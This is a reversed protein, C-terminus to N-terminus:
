LWPVRRTSAEYIVCALAYTDAMKMNEDAPMGQGTRLFALVEPAAYSLSAGIAQSVRFAKVRVASQDVIQCIGFDSLMSALTGDPNV